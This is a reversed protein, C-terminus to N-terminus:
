RDAGEEKGTKGRGGAKRGFLRGALCCVTFVTWGVMAGFLNTLIDDIQFIGRQTFLQLSEVCFSTLLGTGACLFFNRLRKFNWACVFGYPVFLLINELVYANNRSNIGFSSFLELDLRKGPGGERSLLTMSVIIALSICFAAAPFVRVPRAGRRKRRVNVAQLMAVALIGIVLGIPLFRLAGYMDRVFYKLM